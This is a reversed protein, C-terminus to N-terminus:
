PAPPLSHDSGSTLPTAASAPAAFLRKIGRWLMRWVLWVAVAGILSTGLVFILALWPHVLALALGGVVLGDEVISAMWNSAPEPSTNLLARTGSKLGHSALAVGAGAALVGTSLQGDSSLTAAALFAGAPVRTLTQLLDWISDVGPIKDAFFETIALVGSTGLVWWSETAQLAPPLDVWGMLGAIGVGFVTLYVRIGAMWALLIGIVFVHAETM